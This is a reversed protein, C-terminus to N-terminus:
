PAAAAPEDMDARATVLPQDPVTILGRHPRDLDLSIFLILIVVSAAVLSTALGRGLLALYLALVGIAIASGLVQLIVVTSPVRNRLSTVRDTHSDIMENLSEVYLRPATGTPDARVADGAEGWLARQIDGMQRVDEDFRRSDPVHDALDVASDTYQRLLELSASRNPEALLQARLYTTGIANAEQVVIARRNDYRGVAMTLGFALVLGILGLLAGQVVGVPQHVTEPRERLWRGAVTGVAAAGGVLLVLLVVVALTSMHFLTLDM